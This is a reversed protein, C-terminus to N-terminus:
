HFGPFRSIPKRQQLRLTEAELKLRFATYRGRIDRRHLEIFKWKVKSKNGHSKGGLLVLSNLQFQKCFLSCSFNNDVIQICTFFQIKDATNQLM